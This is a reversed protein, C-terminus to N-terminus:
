YVGYTLVSGEPINSWSITRGSLTVSTQQNTSYTPGFNYFFWVEGEAGGDVVVSGSTAIAITAVLRTIRDTIDLIVAGTNPNRVRLGPM